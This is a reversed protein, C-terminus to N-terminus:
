GFLEDFIRDIPHKTGVEPVSEPQYVKNFKPLKSANGKQKSAKNFKRRVWMIVEQYVEVARDESVDTLDDNSHNHYYQISDNGWLTVIYKNKNLNLHLQVHMNQCESGLMTAEIFRVTEVTELYRQAM